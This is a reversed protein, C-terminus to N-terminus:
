QNPNYLCQIISFTIKTSEPHKVAKWKYHIQSEMKLYISCINTKTYSKGTSFLNIEVKTGQNQTLGEGYNLSKENNGNNM